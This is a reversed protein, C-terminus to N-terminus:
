FGNEMVKEISFYSKLVMMESWKEFIKSMSCLAFLMQLTSLPSSCFKFLCITSNLIEM